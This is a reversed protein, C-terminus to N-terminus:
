QKQSLDRFHANLLRTIYLLPSNFYRTTRALPIDFRDPNRVSINTNPKFLNKFRPNSLCKLGFNLSLKIRRFKLTTIGLVLCGQNYDIYKHDLIIKTVIKQIREINETEEHTLMSHFVVCNSELVSRIKM